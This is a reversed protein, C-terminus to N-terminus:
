SRTLMRGKPRFLFLHFRQSISFMEEFLKVISADDNEIKVPVDEQNKDVSEFSSDKGPEEIPRQAIDSFMMREIEEELDVGIRSMQSEDRGIECM